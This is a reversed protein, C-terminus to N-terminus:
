PSEVLLGDDARYGNGLSNCDPSPTNPWTSQNWTRGCDPLDAPGANQTLEQALASTRDGLPIGSQTSPVKICRDAEVRDNPLRGDAQRAGVPPGSGPTFVGARTSLNCTRCVPAKPLSERTDTEAGFSRSFNIVGQITRLLRVTTPAPIQVVPNWWILPM